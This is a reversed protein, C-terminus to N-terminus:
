DQDLSMMLNQLIRVRELLQSARTGGDGGEGKALTNLVVNFTRTNPRVHGGGGEEKLSSSSHLSIM